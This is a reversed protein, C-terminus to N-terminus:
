KVICVIHKYTNLVVRSIQVNKHGQITYLQIFYKQAYKFRYDGFYVTCYNTMFQLTKETTLRVFHDDM